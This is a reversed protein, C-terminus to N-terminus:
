RCALEGRLWKQRAEVALKMAHEASEVSEARVIGRNQHCPVSSIGEVGNAPLGWSENSRAPEVVEGNGLALGIRWRTHLRESLGEDIEWEEINAGSLRWCTDPANRADIYQQAKERSSFAGYISYDSYEGDTVLYIKAM